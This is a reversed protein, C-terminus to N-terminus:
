GCRFFELCVESKRGNLNHSAFLLVIWFSIKQPREVIQTGWVPWQTPKVFDFTKM